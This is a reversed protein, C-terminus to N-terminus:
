QKGAARRPGRAGLEDLLTRATRLDATDFGETFWGYTDRLIRRGEAHRRSHALLQALSTAARLELSREARSRARSVAQRFHEEAEDPHGKVLALEGRLREMEPAFFGGRLGDPIADLIEVGLDVDGADAAVRALGCLCVVTTSALRRNSPSCLRRYLEALRPRAEAPPAVCALVAEGVASFGSLGHTEAMAVVARACDQAEPLDGRFFHVWAAYARNILSTPPHRLREARARGEHLATLAAAPYGLLWRAVAMSDWASTGAGYSTNLIARADEREPESLKQGQEMHVIAGQADGMAVLTLWLIQRAEREGVEHKARQALTLLREGMERAEAYNGRGYHIFSLGWIGLSLHLPDGRREALERVRAFVPEAGLAGTGHQTFIAPGLKARLELEVGDREDPDPVADLRALARTLHEIAERFAGRQLATDASLRHYRLTRAWDRAQEFHVALVAAREAARAQYGAEEREGIRRHVSARRAAPLREHLVQQYLAHLFRYRAAATGDPWEEVGDSAIFQERRCLAECRDEVAEVEEELAAALSAAPIAGGAASAAELLRQEEPALVALRQEIMQRLSEPVATAVDAEVTRLEWGGATKALMGQRVLADVVNVMFLPLGDTRGFVVPALRTGVDGGFRDALYRGVDAPSLPALAVEHSAGHIGLQAAIDRLAHGRAAVDAPRYTAIMLMQAPERRRAVAALLDLTSPDSWHLDELVLVLPRDSALADIADAMERLMRERTTGAVRPQLAAARGADVIGPMQVLWSPAHRELVTVVQEDDAGRALRSVADFVPLYAEGAGFHDLCQGRALRLGSAALGELFTEVLTTKGIGPEGTVFVVQREGRAARDLDGRLLALERERGVLAPPAPTAGRGGGSSPSGIFRYGRRHVTEILWPTRADDGLLKRIEAVCVALAAEGVAVDPWLAELLEDKTVLRRPRESLYRLVSFTKPRLRIEDAGRWVSETDPDLRFGNFSLTSARPTGM